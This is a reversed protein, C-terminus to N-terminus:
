VKGVVRAPTGWIKSGAPADRNVFSQAGIVCRDGITVGKSIICNPGLYCRDGIVVSEKAAPAEGGSIAWDVTDHTYIHVGASISCNDGITLGGSGDLIAFPGIWTDRGVSVDGLVLVSDYISAGEGFGLLRARQWRDVLYDAFPLARQWQAQAHEFQSKWLRRLEVLLQTSESATTGPELDSSDTTGTMDDSM